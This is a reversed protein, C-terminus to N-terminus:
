ILRFKTSETYHTSLHNHEIRFIPTGAVIQAFLFFVAYRRIQCVKTIQKSIPNCLAMNCCREAFLKINPESSIAATCSNLQWTFQSYRTITKLPASHQSAAAELASNHARRPRSWKLQVIKWVCDSFLPCLM